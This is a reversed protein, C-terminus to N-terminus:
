MRPAISASIPTVRSSRVGRLAVAIHLPTLISWVIVTYILGWRAAAGGACFNLGVHYLIAAVAAIRFWSSHPNHFVRYVILTMCVHFIFIEVCLITSNLGFVGTPAVGIVFLLLRGAREIVEAGGFGIGFM